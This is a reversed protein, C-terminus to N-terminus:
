ERASRPLRRAVGRPDDLPSRIFDLYNRFGFLALRRDAELWAANERALDLEHAFRAHAQAWTHVTSRSPLHPDRCVTRLPEGMSLRDYIEDTLHPAYGTPRGQGSAEPLGSRRARAALEAFDPHDKLWRMITARTPM